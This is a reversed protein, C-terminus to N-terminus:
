KNMGKNFKSMLVILNESYDMDLKICKTKFEDIINDQKKNKGKAEIRKM